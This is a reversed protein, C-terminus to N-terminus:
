VAENEENGKISTYRSNLALVCPSFCQLTIMVRKQGSAVKGVYFIM